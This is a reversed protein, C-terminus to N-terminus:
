KRFLRLLVFGVLLILVVATGVVFWKNVVRSVVMMTYDSAYFNDIKFTWSAVNLDSKRANTRVIMGPMLVRNTYTELSYAAISFKKNFSAFGEPDAAQLATRDVKFYASAANVFANDNEIGTEFTNEQDLYSYFLTRSSVTDLNVGMKGLAATILHFFDNYINIKQWSIFKQEITDRLAKFRLSDTQSLVPLNLTDVVFLIQDQEPAYYIDKEDALYIKLENESLYNGVPVSHFPFLRSYTETYEFNNYFWNFKKKLTVKIANHAALSSDHYFERNLDEVTNFEKRAEYVFVKGEKIDKENRSELRTSITWGSDAPLPFSGKFINVSDGKVIITRLIRGDPMVQTTISYELCGSLMLLLPTLTILRFFLKYSGM